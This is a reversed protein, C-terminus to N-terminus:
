RFPTIWRSMLGIFMRSLRSGTATFTASKPRATSRPAVRIVVAPLTIPITAYMAGSCIRPSVSRM